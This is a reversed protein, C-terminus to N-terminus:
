MWDGLSTQGNSSSDSPGDYMNCDSSPGTYSNSESSDSSESDSKKRTSKAAGVVTVIVTGIIAEIIM